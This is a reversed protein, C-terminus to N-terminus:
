VILEQDVVNSADMSEVDGEADRNAEVLGRAVAVEKQIRIIEKLSSVQEMLSKRTAEKAKKISNSESSKDSGKTSNKNSKGKGKEDKAAEDLKKLERELSERGENLGVWEEYAEKGGFCIHYLRCYALHEIPCDITKHLFLYHWMHEWVRGSLNDKLDTKLLWEIHRNYQTRPVAQIVERVVVIQSCCPSALSEPIDYIDFNARFSDQMVRQEPIGAPSKEGATTNLVTSCGPLDDYFDYFYQHYIMAEHGKNMKTHYAASYNDAIYPLVKLNPVKLKKVWSYDEKSTAAIVLNISPTPDKPIGYTGGHQRVIQREVGERSVERIRRTGFICILALVVLPLLIRPTRSVDRLRSRIHHM